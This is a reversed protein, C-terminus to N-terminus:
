EKIERWLEIIDKVILLIVWVLMTAILVCFILFVIVRIAKWSREVSAVTSKSTTIPVLM